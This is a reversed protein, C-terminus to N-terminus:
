QGGAGEARGEHMREGAAQTPRAPDNPGRGGTAVCHTRSRGADPAKGCSCWCHLRVSKHRIQPGEAREMRHVPPAAHAHMRHLRPVDAQRAVDVVLVRDFVDDRPPEQPEHKRRPRGRLAKDRLARERGAEGDVGARVEGGVAVLQLGEVAGRDAEAQWRM